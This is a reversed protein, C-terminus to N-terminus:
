KTSSRYPNVLSGCRKCAVKERLGGERSQMWDLISNSNATTYGTCPPMDPIRSMFEGLTSKFRELEPITNIHAPLTNWLRAAKVGFSNDYRTQTSLPVGRQLNPISAKIGLRQNLNFQMNIDNPAINNYIKWVHIICYRERRRQLSQLRLQKLRDWYSLERLGAIKSTFHRQVDELKQIDATNSPNWVPCCYELRM